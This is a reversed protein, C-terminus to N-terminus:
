ARFIADVAGNKGGCREILMRALEGKSPKRRRVAIKRARRRPKLKRTEGM